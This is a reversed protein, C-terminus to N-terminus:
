AAIRTRSWSLGKEMGFELRALRCGSRGAELTHRRLARGDKDLAAPTGGVPLRGDAYDSGVVEVFQAHAGFHKRAVRRSQRIVPKGGYRGELHVGHGETPFKPLVSVIKSRRSPLLAVWLHATPHEFNGSVVCKQGFICAASSTGVVSKSM